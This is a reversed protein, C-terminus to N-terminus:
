KSKGRQLASEAAAYGRRYHTAFEQEMTTTPVSIRVGKALEDREKRVAELQALLAVIAARARKVIPSPAYGGPQREMEKLLRSMEEVGERERPLDVAENKM